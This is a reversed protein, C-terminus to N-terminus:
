LDDTQLWIRIVKTPFFRNSQSILVKGGPKLVRNIESFIKRVSQNTKNQESTMVNSILENRTDWM